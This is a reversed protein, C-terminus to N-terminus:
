SIPATLGACFFRVMREVIADLNRTDLRDGHVAEILETGAITHAMAGVM